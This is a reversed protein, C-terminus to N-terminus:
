FVIVLKLSIAWFAVYVDNLSEYFIKLICSIDKATHQIELEAHAGKSTDFKLSSYGVQTPIRM